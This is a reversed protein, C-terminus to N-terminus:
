PNMVRLIAPRAPSPKNPVPIPCSNKPGCGARSLGATDRGFVFGCRDSVPRSPLAWNVDKCRLSNPASLTFDFTAHFDLIAYVASNTTPFSKRNHYSLRPTCYPDNCMGPLMPIKDNENPLVM